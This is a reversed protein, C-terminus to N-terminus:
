VKPFHIKPSIRVCSPNIRVYSRYIKVYHLIIRVYSAGIRVYSRMIRVSGIEAEDKEWTFFLFCSLVDARTDCNKICEKWV